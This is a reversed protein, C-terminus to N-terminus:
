GNRFPKGEKKTHENGNVHNEYPLGHPFARSTVPVRPEVVFISQRYGTGTGAGVTEVRSLLSVDSSIINIINLNQTRHASLTHPPFM